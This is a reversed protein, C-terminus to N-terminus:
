TQFIYSSCNPKSPKLTILIFHIQILKNTKYKINYTMTFSFKVPSLYKSISTKKYPWLYDYNRMLNWFDSKTNKFRKSLERISLSSCLFRPLRAYFFMYGDSSNTKKMAMKDTQNRNRTRVAHSLSAYINPSM